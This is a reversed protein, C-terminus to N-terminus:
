GLRTNVGIIGDRTPGPPVLPLATEWGLERPKGLVLDLPPGGVIADIGLRAQFGVRMRPEIVCLHYTTHAPKERELVQTVLDRIRSSDGLQAAYLQVCFRHAVDAFLPVGIEEATLLHSQGLTATNALVAGQEHAPALVTNFGLALDDNLTFLAVVTNSEEIRTEVGAYLKVYRRLGEVTGRQSYLSAAQALNHRTGPVPWDEILEFDLWGALWPLWDAPAAAPDFLSPLAALLDSVQGLESDLAALALELPLRRLAEERYIAPLYRISTAPNYDIRMQHIVPSAEGDSRVLGGLWFNPTQLEGEAPASVAPGVALAHRVAKSLILVDLQDRPQASWGPATFPNDGGAPPLAPPSSSSYTFLQLHANDALPDALVRWRHWTLQGLKTEFPGVLFYGAPMYGADLRLRSVPLGGPGALLEGTGGVALAALPKGTSALTSLKQGTPSFKVITGDAGGVYVAENTAALAIPTALAENLSWEDPPQAAGALEFKCVRPQESGRDLVYLREASAPGAIALRIPERPRNSQTAMTEEFTTEVQGAPSFKQLRANGHDVVYLNGAADVAVDWPDNLHGSVEGPTPQGVPDPQGWIAVVQQTTLDIAQLRHNGSDAIYLRPGTLAPTIALGRPTNLQGPGYGPGSLCPLAAPEGACPQCRWIRHNVPDAIYLDGACDDSTALGAPGIALSQPGPSAPQPDFCLGPLSPEQLDPEVARGIGVEEVPLPVRALTLSGDANRELNVLSFDPWALDLNLYAFSASEYM